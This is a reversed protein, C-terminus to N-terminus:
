KERAPALPRRVRSLQLRLPSSDVSSKLSRIPSKLDHNQAFTFSKSSSKKEKGTDHIVVKGVKHLLVATGQCVLRDGRYM